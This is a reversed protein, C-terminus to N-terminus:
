FWTDKSGGEEVMLLLLYLQAFLLFTHEQPLICARARGPPIRKWVHARDQTLLRLASHSTPSPSNWGLGTLSSVLCIPPSEQVAFLSSESLQCSPLSLNFARCSSSCPACASFALFVAKEKKSMKLDKKKTRKSGEKNAQHSCPSQLQKDPNSDWGMRYWSHSEPWTVLMGGNWRGWRYFPYFSAWRM